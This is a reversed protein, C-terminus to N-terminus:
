SAAIQAAGRAQMFSLSATKRMLKPGDKTIILGAFLVGVFPHGDKAMGYVTPQIIKEMVEALIEDTFV